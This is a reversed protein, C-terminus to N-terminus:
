PFITEKELRNFGVVAPQFTRLKWHIKVFLYNIKIWNDHLKVAVVKNKSISHVFNLTIATLANLVELVSDLEITDNFVKHSDVCAM